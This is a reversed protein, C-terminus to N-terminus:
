VTFTMSAIQAASPSTTSASPPTRSLDSAAPAASRRSPSASSDFRSIRGAETSNLSVSLLRANPLRRTSNM